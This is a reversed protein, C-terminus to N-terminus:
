LNPWIIPIPSLSLSLCFNATPARGLGASQQLSHAASVRGCVTHPSSDAASQRRQMFESGLSSKRAASQSNRAASQSNQIAFKPSRVTFESSRAACLGRHSPPMTAYNFNGGALDGKAALHAHQQVLRAACVSVRVSLRVLM